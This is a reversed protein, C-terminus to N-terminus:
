AADAAAAASAMKVRKSSVRTGFQERIGTHPEKHLCDGGSALIERANALKQMHVNFFVEPPFVVLAGRKHLEWLKSEIKNM